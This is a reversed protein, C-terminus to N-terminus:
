PVRGRAAQARREGGALDITVGDVHHQEDRTFMLGNTGAEDAFRDAAYARMRIPAAGTIQAIVGDGDPSVRLLTTADLVYDGRYEELAHGDMAYAPHTLRPARASLREGAVSQGNSHLLLGSITDLNRVFTIGVSGDLTTFVGDALAFLPWSPAGRLQVSLGANDSRVIVDAGTLLRYLGPYQELEGAKPQYPPSPAVPVPGDSLWGLGIAALPAASNSLLVLGQQRDTRFGVFASFGGSESARWILPWTQDGVDIEHSNWGLGVANGNAQARAQRALLLPARLPSADPHLNVRVFALLDTLTSRLGAAAGLAAYHWHAAPRGFAHGPVLNPVDGLATHELGLPKLVQEGLTDGFGGGYAHALVIGLLGANLVSYAPVSTDAAPAATALYAALDTEAYGAYPDDVSVPFLNRPTAPLGTQQTALSVLPTQALAPSVQAFATPLVKGIPDGLRVKGDIAARALLIGTFVDSIAGIEFASDADPLPDNGFFWVQQESGQILGVAIGAYAGNATGKEFLERYGDPMPLAARAPLAAALLCLILPQAYRRGRRLLSSM